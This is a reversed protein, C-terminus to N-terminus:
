TYYRYATMLGKTMESAAACLGAPTRESKRRYRSQVHDCRLAAADKGAVSPVFAAMQSSASWLHRQLRRNRNRLRAVPSRDETGM